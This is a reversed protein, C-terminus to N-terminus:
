ISMYLTADIATFDKGYALDRGPPKQLAVVAIGTTLKTLIKLLTDQVAWMKQTDVRIYDILNLGDPHIIDEFNSLRRFVKFPPPVPFRFEFKNFRRKLQEPPDSEYLFTNDNYPSGDYINQSILNLIFATKGHNTPSTIVILCPLDLLCFDNLEMPLRLPAEVIDEKSEWWRVEDITEDVLRYYKGNQVLEKKVNVQSLNYLVESIAHKIRSAKQPSFKQLQFFNYVDETTFTKGKQFPLYEKHIRENARAYVGLEAM